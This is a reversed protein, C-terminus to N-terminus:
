NPPYSPPADRPSSGWNSPSSGLTFYLKVGNHVTSWPLWLSSTSHGNLELSQVYPDADSASPANIQLVHGGSLNVSVSTFLPSGIVFGGIATIEPYLGIASFIYWSSMEGGDDNGPLGDTADTFLQTQIRRVVDQTHSPALAFDYEWPVELSPENGIFAYTSNPGDNLKTFFSDLRSVVSNNGMLDFLGRLDYPEMWSYQASTGEQFGNESGTTFNKSWSGDKNRPQIYGSSVNFINQWNGSRELFAHYDKSDRLAHAFQAIAFDDITYEETIAASHEQYVGTGYPVYGLKLYDKFGERIHSQGNIMAHLAGSTDFNTAGFAYIEAIMVDGDDGNMGRSDSNVQEWRPLHGDGQQADNVLSQAIDSANSPAIVALLRILTRYADWGAINEFQTHGNPVVHVKGDFGLYQGNVDNFINPHFFAHYLATYFTVLEDPTGGQVKISNLRSNWASDAKSALASFDFNAFEAALNLEANDISVFSIGVQVHVIKKSGTNFVVFAGTHKGSSSNSGQDVTNGNWTGYSIFARDFEAAFYVKYHTTGCGVTSEDSGTVENNAPLISVGSIINGRISGGANIIMTSLTSSPYTFQGMGTHSTVSLEATINSVNLYVKYYGPHAVESGHSFSSYYLSGHTGPSDVINGVYPMFPFDQYAECGRGSFHTLSFEKIVSDSYSYGGAPNSITDPSWQVMGM